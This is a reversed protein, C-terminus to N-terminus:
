DITVPMYIDNEWIVDEVEVPDDDEDEPVVVICKEVRVTMFEDPEMDEFVEDEYVYSIDKFRLAHDIATKADRFEGLFEEYDNPEGDGDYGLAWVQFVEDGPEAPMEAEDVCDGIVQISNESLTQFVTALIAAEAKRRPTATEDAELKAFKEAENEMIQAFEICIDKM